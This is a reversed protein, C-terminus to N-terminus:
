SVEAWLTKQLTPVHPPVTPSLDKMSFNEYSHPSSSSASMKQEIWGQHCQSRSFSVGGSPPTWRLGAGGAGVRLWPLRGPPCPQLRLVLRCGMVMMKARLHFSSNPGLADKVSSLSIQLSFFFSQCEWAWCFEMQLFLFAPLKDFIEGLIEFYCWSSGDHFCTTKIISFGVFHGCYNADEHNILLFDEVQSSPSTFYVALTRKVM